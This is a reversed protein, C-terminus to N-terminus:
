LAKARKFLSFKKKTGHKSDHGTGQSDSSNGNELATDLSGNGQDLKTSSAGTRSSLKGQVVATSNLINDSGTNLGAESLSHPVSRSQNPLSISKTMMSETTKSAATQGAPGIQKDPGILKDSSSHKVSPKVSIDGGLDFVVANSKEANSMSTVTAPRDLAFISEQSGEDSLQPKSKSRSSSASPLTSAAVPQGRGVAKRVLGPSGSGTTTFSGSRFSLDSNSPHHISQALMTPPMSEDADDLTLHGMHGKGHGREPRKLQKELFALGKNSIINFHCIQEIHQWRQTREQLDLKIDELSARVSMIKHDTEDLSTTHAVRFAGLFKGKQKRIKECMEKASRLQKETAERKADFYKTEIEYSLQLWQQLESLPLCQSDELRREANLLALRVQMLEEEAIKLETSEDMPDRQLKLKEAEAKALKIEDQLRKELSIKDDSITQQEKQAVELDQQVQRLADEAHQLDSLDKSVKQHLHQAENHQRYALYASIAGILLSSVVLFDKLYNHPHKPPGFLVLDTAKLALKQKHVPNKVGLSTALSQSNSALRPLLHGNVPHSRFSDTYQPLEVNNVLWSVVDETTWNYVESTVWLRWLDHVTIFDDNSHFNRKSLGDAHKLDDRVFEDSEAWNLGGDHNDDIQSHLQGIADFGTKDKQCSMDDPPCEQSGHCGVLLGVAFFVLVLLQRDM